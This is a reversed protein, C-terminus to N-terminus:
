NLVQQLTIPLVLTDAIHAGNTGTEVAGLAANIDRLIQAPTKASWLRSLPATM